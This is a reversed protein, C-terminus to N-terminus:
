GRAILNHLQQRAAGINRNNRLIVGESTASDARQRAAEIVGHHASKGCVPDANAADGTLKFAQCRCGGYDVEKFECSKCPEPMWDTGRPCISAAWLMPRLGQSVTRQTTRGWAMRTMTGGMVLWYRLRVLFEESATAMPYGSKTFMELVASFWVPRATSHMAMMM